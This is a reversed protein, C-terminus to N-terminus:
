WWLRQWYKVAPHDYRENYYKQKTIISQKWGCRSCKSRFLEFMGWWWGPFRWRKKGVVRRLVTEGANVRTWYSLLPPAGRTSPCGEGTTDDSFLCYIYPRGRSRSTSYVPACETMCASLCKGGLCGHLWAIWCLKSLPLVINLVSTAGRLPRGNQTLISQVHCVNESDQPAYSQKSIDKRIHVARSTELTIKGIQSHIQWSPISLLRLFCHYSFWLLKLRVLRLNVTTIWHLLFYTVLLTNWRTWQWGLWSRSM